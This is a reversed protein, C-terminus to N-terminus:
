FCVVPIEPFCRGMNGVPVFVYLGTVGTSLALMVDLISHYYVRSPKHQGEMSSNLWLSIHLDPTPCSSMRFKQSPCNFTASNHLPISMNSRPNFWESTILKTNMYMVITDFLFLFLYIFIHLWEALNSHVACYVLFESLDCGSGECLCVVHVCIHLPKMTNKILRGYAILLCSCTCSHILTHLVFVWLQKQGNRYKINCSGSEQIHPKTVPPSLCRLHRYLAPLWSWIFGRYIYTCM